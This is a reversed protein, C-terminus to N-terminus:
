FTGTLDWRQIVAGGKELAQVEIVRHGKGGTISGILSVQADGSLDFAAQNKLSERAEDSFLKGMAPDTGAGVRLPDMAIKLPRSRLVDGNSIEDPGGSKIRGSCGTDSVTKLLFIGKELEQGTVSDMGAVIFRENAFLLKWDPFACSATGNPIVEVLKGEVRPFRVALLRALQRSAEKILSPDFDGVADAAAGATDSGVLKDQLKRALQRVGASFQDANALKLTDAFVVNGSSSDIARASLVQGSGDGQVSAIMIWHAGVLQAVKIQVEDSMAGSQAMAQEKMVRAIQAREVMRIKGDNVLTATFLDGMLAAQDATAGSRNEVSAIALTADRAPEARAGAAICTLVLLTAASRKTSM